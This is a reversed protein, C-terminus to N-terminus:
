SKTIEKEKPELEKAELDDYIFIGDKNLPRENERWIFGKLIKENEPLKSPPYTKGEPNGIYYIAEIENNALTIFINKSSKMKTIGILEQLDNRVYFIVESNGVVDLTKLANKEFRGYMNKGKLQSYGASDKQVMFANNLIILSDLQETKPNSILHITDGTIQNGQTWMVPNRLLETLGTKEYTVLSDCKGQLDSKFFKVHNFAKVIRDEVKGTVMLKDGHIFVSDKEILSIAVAKKTIFVSDKLKFYEAYGGKIISKNITDVVIINGTASAFEINKNYYLSDGEITRDNYFIKSNKLFHSINTRSNHHGKETYISNQKSTITSPGLLDAIGTDTYYDLHNSVVKSEKNTVVVNTFAQFKKTRLYYDGIRSKLVNTADTITGGSKYYLQQTERDFKLTDTQLTMMDDKLVVNGWSTAIKTMGDYDAYKSTQVITDGQNIVVNGMSKILRKDQYIYAKDCRLTAGEHEIFVNGISITADPFRPDTFTNDAKLM